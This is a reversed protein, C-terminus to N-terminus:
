VKEDFRPDNENINQYEIRLSSIYEMIAYYRPFYKFDVVGVEMLEMQQNQNIDKSASTTQGRLKKQSKKFLGGCLHVCFNDCPKKIYSNRQKLNIQESSASAIM